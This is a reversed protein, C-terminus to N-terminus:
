AISEYALCKLGATHHTRLFIYKYDHSIIMQAEAHVILGGPRARRRNWVIMAPQADGFQKWARGALGWALLRKGLGPPM